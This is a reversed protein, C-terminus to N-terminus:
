EFLQRVDKQVFSKALKAWFASDTTRTARALYGPNQLSGSSAVLDELNIPSRPLPTTLTSLSLHSNWVRNDSLFDITSKWKESQFSVKSM